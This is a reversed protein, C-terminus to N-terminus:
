QLSFEYKCLYPAFSLLYLEGLTAIEYIDSVAQYAITVGALYGFSVILAALRLGNCTIRAPNPSCAMFPMVGLCFPNDGFTECVEESHETVVSFLNEAHTLTHGLNLWLRQLGGLHEQNVAKGADLIIIDVMHYLTFRKNM